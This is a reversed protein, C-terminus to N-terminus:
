IGEDLLDDRNALTYMELAYPQICCALSKSSMTGRHIHEDGIYGTIANLCPMATSDSAFTGDRQFYTGLSTAEGTVILRVGLM